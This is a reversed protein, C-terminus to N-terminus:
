SAECLIPLYAWAHVQSAHFNPLARIHSFQPRLSDRNLDWCKLSIWTTSMWIYYLIQSSIICLEALILTEIILDSYVSKVFAVLVM